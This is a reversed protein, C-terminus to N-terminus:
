SRAALIRERERDYRATSEPTIPWRERTARDALAALALTTRRDRVPWGAPYATPTGKPQYERAAQNAPSWRKM